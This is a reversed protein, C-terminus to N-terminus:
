DPGQDGDGGARQRTPPTRSRGRPYLQRLMEQLNITTNGFYHMEAATSVTVEAVNGTAIM